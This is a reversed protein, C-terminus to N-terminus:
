HNLRYHRSLKRSHSWIKVLNASDWLNLLSNRSGSLLGYDSSYFCTIVDGDADVATVESGTSLDWVSLFGASDGLYLSDGIIELSEFPRFPESFVKILNFNLLDWQKIRDDYGVTILTEDYIKCAFFALDHAKIIILPKAEVSSDWVTLVGLENASIIFQRWIVMARLRKSPVKFRSVFQASSANWKIIDGFFGGSYMFEEGFAL